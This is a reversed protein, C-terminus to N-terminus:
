TNLRILHCSLMCLLNSLKLSPAYYGDIIIIKCSSGHCIQLSGFFFTTGCCEDHTCKESLYKRGTSSLQIGLIVVNKGLGAFIVFAM